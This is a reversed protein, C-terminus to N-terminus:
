DDQNDQLKLAKEILSMASTNAAGGSVESLASALAQVARATQVDDAPAGEGIRAVLKAIKQEITNKLSM